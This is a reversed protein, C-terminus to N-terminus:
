NMFFLPNLITRSLVMCELSGGALVMERSCNFQSRFNSSLQLWLHFFEMVGPYCCEEEPVLRQAIFLIVLVLCWFQSFIKRSRAPPGCTMINLSSFSWFSWLVIGMPCVSCKVV